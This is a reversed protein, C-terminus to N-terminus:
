EHKEQQAAPPPVFQMSNPDKRVYRTTVMPGNGTLLIMAPETAQAVNGDWHITGKYHTVLSGAPVPYMKTKDYVTSDSVWWTGSIVYIFRDMSHFHPQSGAGPFWRILVGYPGPKEPNGFLVVQQQGKNAGESWKLDKGFQIPFKSSDPMNAANPVPAGALLQAQTEALVSGSLLFAAFALGFRHLTRM